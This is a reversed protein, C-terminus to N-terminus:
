QIDGFIRDALEKMYDLSFKPDQAVIRNKRALEETYEALPYVKIGGYGEGLHTVLPLVSYDTVRVKQDSADREITIQAMGGLMRNAVGDGVGSTSNVFNGLSYYVLMQKEDKQIMEVPEIVHPHTGLVLDVGNEMFFDAWNKQEKSAELRYETGWHPCVVVFDAIEKAMQIQKKVKEKELLDVAYPMGEPLAIGNTGYTYNLIAIKIGNVEKVTVNEQDELCDHIGLVSIQPYNVRWYDLCREIGRKGKDLAHNTAHCIVDFGTDVLADAVEYPGNFAPYGSIGLEKGGLIVEQNVIALDANAIEEKVESFIPLFCYEGEENVASEEVPTHLLIDGVMVITVKQPPMSENQQDNTNELNSAEMESSPIELVPTDEMSAPINVEVESYIETPILSIPEQKTECGSLLVAITICLFLLKNKYRSKKKM